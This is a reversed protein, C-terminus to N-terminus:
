YEHNYQISLWLSLLLVQGKPIKHYKSPNSFYLLGCVVAFSASLTWFSAFGSLFLLEASTM